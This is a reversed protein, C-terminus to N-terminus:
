SVECIAELVRRLARPDDLEQSLATAWPRKEDSRTLEAHLRNNGHMLVRNCWSSDAQLVEYLGGPGARAVSEQDAASSNATSNHTAPELVGHTRVLIGAPAAVAIGILLVAVPAPDIARATEDASRFGAVIGALAALLASLITAIVPSLSLGALWGIAFGALLLWALQSSGLM